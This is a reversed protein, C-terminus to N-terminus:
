PVSLPQPPDVPPVCDVEVPPAAADPAGADVVSGPPPAPECLVCFEPERCERGCRVQPEQCDFYPAPRNLELEFPLETFRRTLYGVLEQYRAEDGARLMGLAELEAYIGRLMNIPDAAAFDTLLGECTRITEAWCQPDSQCGTALANFGPLLVKPASEHGLSVELSAPLYQFKGDAREAFVLRSFLASKLADQGGALIWSLCQFQHFAEWDLSSALAAQYGEGAPTQLVKLDLALAREPDCSGTRCHEPSAFGGFGLDGVMEWIHTCGGGLQEPRQCFRRDYAEVVLYPVAIDAGWVTSSVWAYKARPAAYGLKSFLDLMLKERFINGTVNSHLRLRELGGIQQGPKFAGVDVSLNPLLQSTWRTPAEGVLRVSVKGFDASRSDQGPTGVVLHEAFTAATGLAAGPWYLDDFSTSFAPGVSLFEAAFRENMREVEAESVVFWFHTGTVGFVDLALDGPETDPLPFGEAPPVTGQVAADAGGGPGADVTNYRHYEFNTVDTGCALLFSGL